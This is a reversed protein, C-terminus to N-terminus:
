NDGLVDEFSYFVEEDSTEASIDRQSHITNQLPGYVIHDNEIRTVGKFPLTMPQFVEQRFQNFADLNRFHGQVIRYRMINRLTLANEQPIKLRKAIKKAANRKTVWARLQNHLDDGTPIKTLISLLLTGNKAQSVGDIVGLVSKIPNMLLKDEVKVLASFQITQPGTLKFGQEIEEWQSSAHLFEGQLENPLFPLKKRVCFEALNKDLLSQDKKVGLHSGVLTALLDRYKLLEQHSSITIKKRAASYLKETFKRSPRILSFVLYENSLIPITLVIGCAGYINGKRSYVERPTVTVACVEKM